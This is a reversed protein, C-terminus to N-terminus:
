FIFDPVKTGLHRVDINLYEKTDKSIEKREVQNSIARM